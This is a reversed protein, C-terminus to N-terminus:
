KTWRLQIIDGQALLEPAFSIGIGRTADGPDATETYHEGAMQLMGNIFVQLSKNGVVFAEPSQLTYSSAGILPDGAGVKKDEALHKHVAAIADEVGDIRSEINTDASARATAEDAVAQRIATLEANISAKGNRAALVEAQLDDIETEATLIRSDNSTKYGQLDTNVDSVATANTSVDGEIGILRTNLDTESGRAAQVETELDTARTELSDIDTENTSVRGTLAAVAADNTSKYGALDTEVADIEGQLATDADGRTKVEDALEQSLSKARNSNGDHDYVYGSGFVDKAIQHLDLRASVDSAGDVFKENAAFNEAVTLFDFRAPYQFDITTADVVTHPKEAGLDDKSYFTVTYVGAAETLRGYVENGDTGVLPDGTVADRLIVKNKSAQVVPGKDSDTAAPTGTVQGSVDVSGSNGAVAKGNVQVYDVVLKKALIEDGRANWDINLKSESLGATPAFHSDTLIGPKIQNANIKNFQM